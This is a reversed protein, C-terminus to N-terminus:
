EWEEVALWTPQYLQHYKKTPDCPPLLLSTGLHIILNMALPMLSSKSCLTLIKAGIAPEATFFRGELAPSAPSSPDIGPEPIDGPPPFPLWSWYEQRSFGM